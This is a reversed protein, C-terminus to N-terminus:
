GCIEIQKDLYGAWYIDIKHSIRSDYGHGWRFRM